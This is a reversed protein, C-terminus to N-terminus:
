AGYFRKAPIECLQPKAVRKVKKEVNKAVVNKINEEEEVKLKKCVVGGQTKDEKEATQFIVDNQMKEFNEPEEILAADPSSKEELRVEDQIACEAESFMFVRNGKEPQECKESSGSAVASSMKEETSNDDQVRFEAEGYSKLEEFTVIDQMTYVNINCVPENLVDHKMKVDNEEAANFIVNKEPQKRALEPSRRYFLRYPVVKLVEDITTEKVVIDNYLQWVGKPSKCYSYYHSDYKRHVVVAYLEYIVDSNETVDDGAVYPRINLKEPFETRVGLLGGIRFSLVTPPPGVFVTKETTERLGKCRECTKKVSDSASSRSLLRETLVGAQLRIFENRGVSRELGCANCRYVDAVNAKYIDKIISSGGEDQFIINLTFIKKFATM